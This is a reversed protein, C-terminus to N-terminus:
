VQKTLRYHMPSVGVAKKFARSLSEAHAFGVQEAITALPFATDELLGKAVQIRCRVVTDAITSEYRAAFAKNLRSASIGFRAAIAALKVAQPDAFHAAVYTSIKVLLAEHQGTDPLRQIREDYLALFRALYVKLAGDLEDGRKPCHIVRALTLWEDQQMTAKPLCSTQTPTTKWVDALPRLSPYRRTLWVLYGYPFGFVLTEHKGPTLNTAYNGPALYCACYQSAELRLSVGGDLLRDLRGKLQYIFLVCGEDVRIRIPQSHAVDATYLCIRFQWGDIAQAYLHAETHELVSRGAHHLRYDSERVPRNLPKFPSDPAQIFHITLLKEM